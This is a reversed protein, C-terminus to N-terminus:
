DLLQATLQAVVSHDRPALRKTLSRVWREARKRKIMPPLHLGLERYRACAEAAPMREVCVDALFRAILANWATKNGWYHIFWDEASGLRGDADLSLSLSLQELLSSDIGAECM